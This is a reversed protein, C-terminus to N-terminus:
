RLNNEKDHNLYSNMYKKYWIWLGIVSLFVVLLTQDIKKWRDYLNSSWIIFLASLSVIVHLVQIVMYIKYEENWYFAKEHLVIILVLYVILLLTLVILPWKIFQLLAKMNM